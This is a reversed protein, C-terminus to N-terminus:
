EPRVRGTHQDRNRMATRRRYSGNAKGDERDDTRPDRAPVDDWSLIEMATQHALDLFVRVEKQGGPPWKRMM